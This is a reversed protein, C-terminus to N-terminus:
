QYGRWHQEIEWLPSGAMAARMNAIVREYQDSNFNSWGVQMAEKWFGRFGGLNLNALETLLTRDIPPHLATVSDHLHHGGYVFGAKLYINILKAAVGHTFTIHEVAAAAIVTSRWKRHQEDVNPPTPLNDPSSLLRHMGANELIRKGAEVTFRCNRNVSAASAAAWAGFRHKHEEISYPM